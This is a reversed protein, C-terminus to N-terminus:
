DLEHWTDAALEPPVSADLAVRCAEPPLADGIAWIRMPRVGLEDFL